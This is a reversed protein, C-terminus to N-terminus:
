EGGVEDAVVWVDLCSLNASYLGYLFVYHPETVGERVEGAGYFLLYGFTLLDHAAPRNATGVSPLEKANSACAM